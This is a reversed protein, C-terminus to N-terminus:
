PRGRPKAAVPQGPYGSGANQPFLSPGPKVTADTQVGAFGHHSIEAGPFTKVVRNDAIRDVQGGAQLAQIFEIARGDQGAFSGDLFTLSGYLKLLEVPHCDFSPGRRYPYISGQREFSFKSGKLALGGLSKIGAQTQIALPM